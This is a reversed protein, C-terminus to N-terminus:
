ALLAAKSMAFLSHVAHQSRCDRMGMGSMPGISRIPDPHFPWIMWMLVAAADPLLQESNLTWLQLMVTGCSRCCRAETRMLLQRAVM